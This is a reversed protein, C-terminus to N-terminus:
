NKYRIKITVNIYGGKRLTEIYAINEKKIIEHVEYTEGAPVYGIEWGSNEVKIADSDYRNDPEAILSVMDFEKCINLVPYMYKDLHVGKVNFSYENPYERLNVDIENRSVGKNKIEPKNKSNFSGILLLIFFVIIIIIFFTQM